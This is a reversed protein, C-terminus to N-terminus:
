RGGKKKPQESGLPMGVAVKTARVIVTNLARDEAEAAARLKELVDDPFRVTLATTPVIDEPRKRPRAM